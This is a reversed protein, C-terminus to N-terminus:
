VARVLHGSFYTYRSNNGVIDATDGAGNSLRLRTYVQTGSACYVTRAGSLIVASGGAILIGSPDCFSLSHVDSGVNLRYELSTMAATVGSVYVGASFSYYGNVPATFIGTSVNYDSGQDYDETPLVINVTTAAGTVNSQNGDSASRYAAFAPYTGTSQDPFRWNGAILCSIRTASADISVNTATNNDAVGSLTIDTCASNVEIGDGTNGNAVVNFNGRIQDQLTLGNGTNGQVTLGAVNNNAETTGLSGKTFRCGDGANNRSYGGTITVDNCEVYIGHSGSGVVQPDTITIDAPESSADDLIYIGYFGCNESRFSAIRGGTIAKSMSIGRAECNYAGGGLVIINVGTSAAPNHNHGYTTVIVGDYNASADGLGYAYCESFEIDENGQYSYFGRSLVGYTHCDDFQSDETFNAVFGINFLGYVQVNRVRIGKNRVSVSQGDSYFAANANDYNVESVSVTITGAYGGDSFYSPRFYIGDSVFYYVEDWTAVAGSVTTSAADEVEVEGAGTYSAIFTKLTAGAAGAGAISVARGVDSSAFPNSASTLTTGSSTIAADSVTAPTAGSTIVTGDVAVIVDRNKVANNTWTGSSFTFKDTGDDSLGSIVVGTDEAYNQDARRIVFDSYEADEVPTSSGDLDFCTIPTDGADTGDVRFETLVGDGYLKENSISALNADVRYIGGAVHVAKKNAVAWARARTLPTVASTSGTADLGWWAAEVDGAFLREWAGSAGTADSSPPVWVGEGPDATIQASQDGSRWVFMGGRDADEIWMSSYLGAALAKAATYNAVLANDFYAKISQQSAAAIASDSAMDDEDLFATGSLTGNLVPSTLMKNTLTETGALTAFSGDSLATNFQATTGTLTNSALSFTKNTLTETGAVTAMTGDFDPWTITRTNGTTVGSIQFKGAKSTDGDDVVSFVSDPVAALTVTGGDPNFNDMTWITVGAASKLVFKYALAQLYINGFRGNADAVIPNTHATTLAEDSYAALPTTTSEAYTYLLAGSIPDGSGDLMSQQSLFFTAAM